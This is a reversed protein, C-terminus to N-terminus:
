KSEKDHAIKLIKLFVKATATADVVARHAGNLEVDLAKAVFELKYKTLGPIYKRALELTDHVKNDFYIGMPEGKACIFRQDFEVNHGVLDIGNVFKYFDPLVQDITPKGDVDEQRIGTLGIIFESLEEKPDILASFTEVIKGDVIKVAGIEIIQCTNPSLGTTETDFVIYEKGKLFDMDIAAGGFLSVQEFEVYPQPEIFRYATDVKRVMRNFELDEPVTCTSVDKIMFSMGYKPDQPMELKGKVVIVSGVHLLKIKDKTYKNPFYVCEFKGSIDQINLKYLVKKVNEDKKSNYSIEDFNVLTGCIVAVDMPKNIDAIYMAKQYIPAGILADVNQTRIYRGDPDELELMDVKTEVQIKSELSEGTYKEIFKFEIKDCYNSSLYAKVQKVTDVQKSYSYIAEELSVAVNIGGDMKVVIDDLSVTSSISPFKKFYALMDNKFYTTDFHSKTLKVTVKANGGYALCFANTIADVDSQALSGVSEPYIVVFEVHRKLFYVNIKSLKLFEYKNETLKNFKEILKNTM